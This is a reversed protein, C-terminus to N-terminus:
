ATPQSPQARSSRSSTPTCSKPAKRSTTSWPLSRTRQMALPSLLSSCFARGRYATSKRHATYASLQSEQALAEEDYYSAIEPAVSEFYSPYTAQVEAYVGNPLQSELAVRPITTYEVSEEKAWTINRPISEGGYTAVATATTYQYHTEVGNSCASSASSFDDESFVEGAPQDYTSYFHRPAAVPLPHTQQAPSRGFSSSAHSMAPSTPFGQGYMEASVFTFQQPASYQAFLTSDMRAM